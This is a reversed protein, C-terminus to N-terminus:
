DVLDTDTFGLGRRIGRLIRALLVVSVNRKGREIASLNTAPMNIRDALQVQTVGALERTRRIFEGAVRMTRQESATFKGAVPARLM